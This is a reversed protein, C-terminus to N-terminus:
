AKVGVHVCFINNRTVPCDLTVKPVFNNVYELVCQIPLNALSASRFCDERASRSKGLGWVSQYSREFLM